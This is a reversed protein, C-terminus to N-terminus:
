RFARGLQTKLQAVKPSIINKLEYTKSGIQFDATKVMYKNSPRLIQVTTKYHRALIWAVDVDKKPPKYNHPVLVDINKRHYM